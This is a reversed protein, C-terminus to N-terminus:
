EGSGPFPPRVNGEIDFWYERFIDCACLPNLHAILCGMTTRLM